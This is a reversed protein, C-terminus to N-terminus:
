IRMSVNEAHLKLLLKGRVVGPVISRSRVGGLGPGAARHGGDEEEAAPTGRPGERRSGMEDARRGQSDTLLVWGWAVMEVAWLGEAGPRVPDCERQRCLHVLFSTSTELPSSPPAPLSSLGPFLYFNGPPKSPPHTLAQVAHSLSSPFSPPDETPVLPCKSFSLTQLLCPPHVPQPRPSPASVRAQFISLTTPRPPPHLGRPQLSSRGPPWEQPLPSLRPLPCRTSLSHAADVWLFLPPKGEQQGLSSPRSATTAM